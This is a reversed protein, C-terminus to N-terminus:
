FSFAKFFIKKKKLFFRSQRQGDNLVLAASKSGILATSEDNSLVPNM